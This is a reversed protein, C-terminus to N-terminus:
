NPFLDNYWSEPTVVNYVIVMENMQIKVLFQVAAKYLTPQM